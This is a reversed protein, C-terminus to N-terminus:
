LEKLFDMVKPSNHSDKYREWERKIEQNTYTRYETMTNDSQVMKLVM